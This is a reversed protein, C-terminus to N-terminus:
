CRGIWRPMVSQMSCLMRHAWIHRTWLIKYIAHLVAEAHLIWEELYAVDKKRLLALTARQLHRDQPLLHRHCLENYLM